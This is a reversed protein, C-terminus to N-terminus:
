AGLIESVKAMGADTLRYGVGQVTQLYERGFTKRAFSVWVDIIKAERDMPEGGYRTPIARLLSYRSVPKGKAGYLISIVQASGRRNMGGVKLQRYIADVEAENTIQGLERRLERVEDQLDELRERLADCDRCM